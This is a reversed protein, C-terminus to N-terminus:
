KSKNTHNSKSSLILPSMMLYSSLSMLSLMLDGIQHKLKQDKKALSVKPNEVLQRLMRDNENRALPVM